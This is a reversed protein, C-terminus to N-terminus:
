RDIADIPGKCHRQHFRLGGAPSKNTLLPAWQSCRPCRYQENYIESPLELATVAEEQELDPASAIVAGRRIRNSEFPIEWEKGLERIDQPSYKHRNDIASTLHTRLQSAAERDNQSSFLGRDCEPCQYDTIDLGRLQPFNVGKYPPRVHWHFAIIQSVPFEKAGGLQFIMKWMDPAMAANFPVGRADISTPRARAEATGPNFTGYSMLRAFGKEQFHMVNAWTVSGTIIWNNDGRRFYGHRGADPPAAVDRIEPFLEPLAM